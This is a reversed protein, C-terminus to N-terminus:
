AHDSEKPPKPSGWLKSETGKLLRQINPSHRRVILLALISWALVPWRSYDALVPLCFRTGFLGLASPILVLAGVISGLSVTRSVLVLLIFAGLSPLVMMPHYALAVGMATAVGKGGEFRLWPTFIHGVVGALAVFSLMQPPLGWRKALYVPVFGKAIDLIMTLIGLAKGGTRLVNTAGINGSGAQRVDGKGALKMLVLGFPISGALYAALCWLGFVSASPTPM